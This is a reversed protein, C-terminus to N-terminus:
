WAFFRQTIYTYRGRKAVGIGMRDWGRRLINDRHGASQMFMNMASRASDSATTRAVNEGWARARRPIESSLRSDHYISRARAMERSHDRSWYQTRDHVRLRPLGRRARERNILYEIRNRIQGVTRSDSAAAPTAPLLSCLVATILSILLMRTLVPRVLTM